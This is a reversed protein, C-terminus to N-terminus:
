VIILQLLEFLRLNQFIYLNLMSSASTLQRKLFIVSFLRRGLHNAAGLAEKM